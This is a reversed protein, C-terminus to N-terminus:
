RSATGVTNGEVLTRGGTSEVTFKEDQTEWYKPRFDFIEKSVKTSGYPLNMTQGTKGAMLVPYEPQWSMVAPTGNAGTAAKPDIGAQMAMAQAIPIRVTADDNKTGDKNTTADNNKVYVNTEDYQNEIELNRVDWPYMDPASQRANYSETATDTYPSPLLRPQPPVVVQALAAPTKEQEDSIRGNLVNFMGFMAAMVVGTSVLIISLGTVISKVNADGSEYGSEVSYDQTGQPKHDAM